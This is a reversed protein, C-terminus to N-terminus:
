CCKYNCNKYQCGPGFSKCLEPRNEYNLCVRNQTDFHKCTFINSIVKGNVLWATTNGRIKSKYFDKKTNKEPDYDIEDKIQNGNQPNIETQGLPILMEILKDIQEEHIPQIMNGSESLIPACANIMNYVVKDTITIIYPLDRVRNWERKMMLLDCLTVPLTFKECCGGACGNVVQDRIM